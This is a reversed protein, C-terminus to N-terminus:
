FVSSVVSSEQKNYLPKSYVYLMDKTHFAAYLQKYNIFLQFINNLM